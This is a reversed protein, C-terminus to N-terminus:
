RCREGIDKDGRGPVLLRVDSAEYLGYGGLHHFGFLPDDDVVIRRVPCGIDDALMQWMPRPDFQDRHPVHPVPAKGGLDITKVFAQSRGLRLSMVDDPVDIRIHREFSIIELEKQASEGGIGPQADRSGGEDFVATVARDGITELALTVHGAAALEKWREPHLRLDSHIMPYFTARLGYQRLLPGVLDCHVPLGDDYTLSVAGQFEGPWGIRDPM